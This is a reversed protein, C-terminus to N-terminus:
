EGDDATLYLTTGNGQYIARMPQYGKRLVAAVRQKDLVVKGRVTKTPTCAECENPWGNRHVWGRGRCEPCQADALERLSQSQSM